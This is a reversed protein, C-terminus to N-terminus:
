SIWVEQIVVGKSQQRRVTRDDGSYIGSLYWRPADGPALQDWMPDHPRHESAVLNSFGEGHAAAKVNDSNALVNLAGPVHVIARYARGHILPIPDGVFRGAPVPPPANPDFAVASVDVLRAWDPTYAMKGGLGATGPLVFPLGPAPSSASQKRLHELFAASMLGPPLEKLQAQRAFYISALGAGGLLSIMLFSFPDM